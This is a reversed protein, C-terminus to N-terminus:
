EGEQYAKAYSLYNKASTKIWQLEDDTLPRKPRAPSGIMLTKPPVITQEVVLAGAAIISDEGIKAGDMLIAGMGILCRNGIECGHLVVNHGVTVDDGIHLPHLEKTVHLMCIDQINTRNGIRIFHVDGRIVTHVWVNSWEGIVVDGIITASDEIFATEHITPLIGKFSKIM